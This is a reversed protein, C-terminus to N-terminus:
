GRRQRFLLYSRLAEDLPQTIDVLEHDARAGIAARKLESVHAEIKERYRSRM